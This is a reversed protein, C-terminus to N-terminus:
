RRLLLRYQYEHSSDNLSITLDSLYKYLIENKSITGSKIFTDLRRCVSDIDNVAVSLCRWDNDYESPDDIVDYDSDFDDLEDEMEIYEGFSLDMYMSNASFYSDSIEQNCDEYRHKFGWLQQNIKESAEEAGM